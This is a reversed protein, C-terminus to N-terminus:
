KAKMVYSKNRLEREAVRCHSGCEFKYAVERVHCGCAVIWYWLGCSGRQSEWERASVRIGWSELWLEWCMVGVVRSHGDTGHSQFTHWNRLEPIDTLGAVRSQRDKGHIQFSRWDRLEPIDALGAVRFHRDTGHSIQSRQRILPNLPFLGRWNQIQGVRDVEQPPAVHMRQGGIYWVEWLNLTVYTVEMIWWLAM